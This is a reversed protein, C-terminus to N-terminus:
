KDKGPKKPQTAPKKHEKLKKKDKLAKLMRRRKECASCGMGSYGRSGKQTHPRM